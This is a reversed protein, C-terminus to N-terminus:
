ENNEEGLEKLLGKYGISDIKEALEVGDKAVIKGNVMIMVKDPKVHKFIRTYHTILLVGKGRDRMEAIMAGVMKLGDADLGSDPEDLIIYNPDLVQAQLFESRKKEGGSFGINVERYLMDKPLGVMQVLKQTQSIFRTDVLKLLDGEVGKRKNYAALLLNSLKVGPIEPPTQFALFLGKISRVHTEEETIDEGDLLIKGEIVEYKPHGMLVYALSTKGSGNPGMLALIEGKELSLDVGKLVIKEQIKAKIGKVELM